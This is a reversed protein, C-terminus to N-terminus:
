LLSDPTTKSLAKKVKAEAAAKPKNSSASVGSQSASLGLTRSMSQISNTLQMLATQNPNVVPTGKANLISVGEVDVDRMLTEMKVIMRALNAALRTRLTSWQDVPLSDVVGEFVTYEPPSLPIPSEAGRQFVEALKIENQVSDSRTKRPMNEEARTHAFTAHVHM